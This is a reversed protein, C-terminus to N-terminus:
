SDDGGFRLRSGPEGEPIARLEKSPVEEVFGFQNRIRTKGTKRLRKDLVTVVANGRYARLREAV